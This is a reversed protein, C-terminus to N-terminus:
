IGAIEKRTYKILGIHEDFSDLFDELEDMKYVGDGLSVKPINEKVYEEKVRIKEIDAKLKEQEERKKDVENRINEVNGYHNHEFEKEKKQARKLERTLKKTKEDVRKDFAKKNYVFYQPLGLLKIIYYVLYFPLLLIFLITSKIPRKVPLMNTYHLLFALAFLLPIFAASIGPIVKAIILILLLITLFGFGSLISIWKMKTRDKGIDTDCYEEWKILADKKEKVTGIVSEGAQEYSEAAQNIKEDIKVIEDDLRAIEKNKAEIKEEIDLSLEDLNEKIKSNKEAIKDSLKAANNKSSEFLKDLKEKQAINAFKQAGIFNSMKELGNESVLEKENKCNLEMMLNTYYFDFASLKGFEDIYQAVFNLKKQAETENNIRYLKIAENVCVELWDGIFKGYYEKQKEDAFELATKVEKAEPWKYYYLKKIEALDAIEKKALFLLWWAESSKPDYNLAKDCIEQAKEYDNNKLEIKARELMGLINVGAASIGANKRIEELLSNKLEEEKKIRLIRAEEARREEEAKREKSFVIGHLADHLKIFYDEEKEKFGQLKSIQTPMSYIDCNKTFLPILGNPKLALFRSWENKVWQSEVYDNESCILVMAKATYLAYYINPEYERRALNDDLSIDSYFIRFKTCLKAYLKQALSYDYTSGGDAASKKFCIFVDWPVTDAAIAYYKERAFEIDESQKLMGYYVENGHLVALDLAKKLNVNGTVPTKNVSYFSPYMKGTQFDTEFLVNYECLFVGFYAEAVPNDKYDFIIEDYIRRAKNFEGSQRYDAARELRMQIAGNKNSFDLKNGCSICEYIDDKQVLKTSGCTTCRLASM